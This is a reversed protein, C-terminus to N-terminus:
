GQKEDTLLVGAAQQRFPRWNLHLRWETSPSGPRALTSGDVLLLRRHFNTFMLRRNAHAPLWKFRPPALKAAIM